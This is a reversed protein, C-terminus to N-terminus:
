ATRGRGGAGGIVEREELVAAGAHVVRRGDAYRAGTAQARQMAWLKAYRGLVSVGGLACVLFGPAGDLFGRRLVYMTLFRGLPKFVLAAMGCREGRKWLDNASWTTYRRFKEFYEDLTRYTYHDIKGALDAIPGDAILDAHVELEPYRARARDFLRVVRDRAWGCRTILIDLFFTRRFIGYAAATRRAEDGLLAQIERALEPTVREDADLILVWRHASQPIAWNKQAASNVYEHQVVRAGAATAIAVTRDTSFSDVVFIEDAWGAVSALADPLNREENYTPILVTLPERSTPPM